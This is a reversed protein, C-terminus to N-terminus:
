ANFKWHNFICYGSLWGVTCGQLWEFHGGNNLGPSSHSQPNLAPRHALRNDTWNGTLACAQAKPWTGGGGTPPVCSAVVCQHKKGEKEGERRKERSIFLYFRKLFHYLVIYWYGTHHWTPMQSYRWNRKWLFFTHTNQRSPVKLIWYVSLSIYQLPRIYTTHYM